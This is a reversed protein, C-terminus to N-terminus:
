LQDTLTLIIKMLSLREEELAGLLANLNPLTHFFNVDVKQSHLLQEINKNLLFLGRELQKRDGKKTFLPFQIQNTDHIFSRSCRPVMKYRLPVDLYRAILGVLSCIHGLAVAMLEDDQNPFPIGCITWQDELNKVEFIHKTQHILELCDKRLFFCTENLKTTSSVNNLQLDRTENQCIQLSIFGSKLESTSPLLFHTLKEVKTRDKDIAKGYAQLENNLTKVDDKLKDRQKILEFYKKRQELKKEINLVVKTHKEKIQELEGRKELINLFDTRTFSPKSGEIMVNELHKSLSIPKLQQNEILFKRTEPLSYFGDTLKILITNVPFQYDENQIYKIETM